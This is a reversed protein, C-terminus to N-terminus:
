ESDLVKTVVVSDINERTAYDVVAERTLEETKFVTYSKVANVGRAKLKEAIVSEFIQRRSDRSAVGIVLMNTSKESYGEQKWASTLRSTSCGGLLFAMLLSGFVLLSFRSNM